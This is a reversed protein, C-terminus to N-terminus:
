SQANALPWFGLCSFQLPLKIMLAHKASHRVFCLYSVAMLHFFGDCCGESAADTNRQQHLSIDTFFTQMRAKMFWQFLWYQQM